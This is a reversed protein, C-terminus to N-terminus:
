SMSTAARTSCFRRGSRMACRHSASGLRLARAPELRNWRWRSCPKKLRSCRSCASPPSAAARGIPRTPTVVPACRTAVSATGNGSFAARSPGTATPGRSNSHSLARMTSRGIGAPGARPRASVSASASRSTSSRIAPSPGRILAQRSPRRKAWVRVRRGSATGPWSSGAPVGPGPSTGAPATHRMVPPRPPMPSASAPSRARRRPARM